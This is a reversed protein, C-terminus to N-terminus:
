DRSLRAAKPLAGHIIDDNNPSSAGATRDRHQEGPASISNKNEIAVGERAVHLHGGVEDMLSSDSAQAPPTEPVLNDGGLTWRYPAEVDVDPRERKRLDSSCVDSSWDCKFRTHRRRSSFFFRRGFRYALM